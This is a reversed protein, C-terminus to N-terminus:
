KSKYPLFLSNSPTIFPMSIPVPLANERKGECFAVPLQILTTCRTGTRILNSGCCNASVGNRIPREAVALTLIESEDPGISRSFASGFVKNAVSVSFYSSLATSSKISDIM